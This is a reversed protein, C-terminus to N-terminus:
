NYLSLGGTNLTGGSNMTLTGTAAYTMGGIFTVNGNVSLNFGADTFISTGTGYNTFNISACVLNANLTCNRAHNAGTGNFQLNDSAYIYCAPTTGAQDTTWNGPTNGNTSAGQPNWYLTEGGASIVVNVTGAAYQMTVNYNNTNNIINVSGFAVPTNSCTVIGTATGTAALGTLDLTLSSTGGLTLVGTLALHDFTTGQGYGSIRITLA